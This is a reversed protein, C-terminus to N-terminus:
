EWPYGSIIVISLGPFNLSYVNFIRKPYHMSFEMSRRTQLNWAILILGETVKQIATIAVYIWIVASSVARGILGTNAAPFTVPWGCTLHLKTDALLIATIEIHFCSTIHGVL